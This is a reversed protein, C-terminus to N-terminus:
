KERKEANYEFDLTINQLAANVADTNEWDIRERLFYLTIARYMAGRDVFVYNLKKALAKALTSKGTSSYGDVAIVIKKM